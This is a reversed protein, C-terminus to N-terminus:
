VPWHDAENTVDYQLRDLEHPNHTVETCKVRVKVTYLPWLFTRSLDVLVVRSITAM